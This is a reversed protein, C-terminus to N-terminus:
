LIKNNKIISDEESAMNWKRIIKLNKKRMWVRRGGKSNWWM